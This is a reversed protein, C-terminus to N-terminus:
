IFRTVYNVGFVISTYDPSLSSNVALDYEQGIRM